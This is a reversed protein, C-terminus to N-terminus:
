LVGLFQKELFDGRVNEIKEPTFAIDESNFTIIEMTSKLNFTRKVQVLLFSDEVVEYIVGALAYGSDLHERERFVSEKDAKEM